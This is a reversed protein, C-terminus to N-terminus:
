RPNDVSGSSGLAYRDGVFMCAVVLCDGQGEAQPGAVGQAEADPGAEEFDFRKGASRCWVYMLVFVGCDWTNTQKPINRPYVRRWARAPEQRGAAKYEEVMHFQLLCHAGGATQICDHPALQM